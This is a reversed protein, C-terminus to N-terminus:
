RERKTFVVEVVPVRAMFCDKTGKMFSAMESSEDAGDPLHIDFEHLTRAIM